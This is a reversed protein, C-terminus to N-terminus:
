VERIKYYDSEVDDFYLVGEEFAKELREQPAGMYHDEYYQMKLAEICEEKTGLRLMEVNTVVETRTNHTQKYLLFM